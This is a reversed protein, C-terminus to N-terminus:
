EVTIAFDLVRLPMPEHKRPPTAQVMLSLVGDVHWRIPDPLMESQFPGGEVHVIKWDSWKSDSSAAAIHLNEGANYVLIANDVKDLVIKPRNGM